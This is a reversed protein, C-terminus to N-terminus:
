YKSIFEKLEDKVICSLEYQMKMCTNVTLEHGGSAVKDKFIEVLDKNVPKKKNLGVSGHIYMTVKCPEKLMDISNIMGTLIARNTTTEELISKIIKRRGKYELICAYCGIKDINSRCMGRVYINVKKMDASGRM